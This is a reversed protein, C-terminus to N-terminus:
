PEDDNQLTREEEIRQEMAISQKQQQIAQMLQHQKTNQKSLKEHEKQKRREEIQEERKRKNMEKQIERIEQQSGRWFILKPMSLQFKTYTYSTICFIKM